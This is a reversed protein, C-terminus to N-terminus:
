KSSFTADVVSISVLTKTKNEGTWVSEKENSFAYKSVNLRYDVSFSAFVSISIVNDSTKKRM